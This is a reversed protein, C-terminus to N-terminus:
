AQKHDEKWFLSLCNKRSPGNKTQKALLGKEKGNRRPFSRSDRVRGKGRSRVFFEREQVTKLSGLFTGLARPM